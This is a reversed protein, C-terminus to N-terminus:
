RAAENRDLSFLWGIWDELRVVADPGGPGLAHVVLVKEDTKLEASLTGPLLSITSILLTAPQGAPLGIHHEFFEPAIPLRPDLTRRAVDIGGRFSEVIFFGAFGILRLPNWFQPKGEALWAAIVGGVLAAVAGAPWDSGGDLILWIALLLVFAQGGWAVRPALGRVRGISVSDGM